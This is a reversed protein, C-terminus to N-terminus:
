GPPEAVVRLDLGRLDAPYDWLVVLFPRVEGPSIREPARPAVAARLREGAGPGTASWIEEPSPLAGLLGEGQAVTKKGDLLQVRVKVAGSAPARAVVQGRVFLVPKGGVTDYLGSSVVRAEFSAEPPRGLAAWLAAKGGGTWYLFLGGALVLLLALSLSNVLVAVARRAAPGGASTAEAASAAATAGTSTTEALGAPRQAAFPAPEPAAPPPAPQPTEAPIAQEETRRDDVELGSPGPTRFDAQLDEQGITALGLPMPTRQRREGEELALGGTLPPPTASAFPDGAPPPGFSLGAPAFPDPAAAAPAPGAPPAPLAGPPASRESAFPDPQPAAFSATEGPRAFTATEGSRAAFTATQGPRAAPAPTGAPRAAFTATQGARAAFPDDTAAQPRSGLAFPDGTLELELAGPAPRPAPAPPAPPLSAGAEPGAGAPVGGASGLERRVLFLAQCRSCRVRAGKPGVKEDPIRFRTQCSACTVIM